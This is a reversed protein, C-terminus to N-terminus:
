FPPQMIIMSRQVAVDFSYSGANGDSPAREMLLLVETGAKGRLLQVIDRIPRDKFYIITGDSKMMGAIYDGPEVQGSSGVASLVTTEKIRPLGTEDMELRAGIGTLANDNIAKLAAQREEPNELGMAWDIAGLTDTRVYRAMKRILNRRRTEDTERELQQKQRDFRLAQQQWYRAATQRQTTPRDPEAPPLDAEKSISNPRPPLFTGPFASPKPPLTEANPTDIQIPAAPAPAPPPPHVPPRAFRYAVGGALAAAVVLIIAIRKIM